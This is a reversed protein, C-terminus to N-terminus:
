RRITPKTNRRRRLLIYLAGNGGRAESPHRYSLILPRLEPTNLWNPVSNKLIGRVAFIDEEQEKHYNGKGTIIMICRKNQMYANTIFNRVLEFANKETKGHLDLVAEVPFEEKSFKKLTSRDIGANFGEELDSLKEGHYADFINVVPRIDITLVSDDEIKDSDPLKKINQVLEEWARTDEKDPEPQFNQKQKTM